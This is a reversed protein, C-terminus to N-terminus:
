NVTKDKEGNKGKEEESQKYQVELYAWIKMITEIGNYGADQYYLDLLRFLAMATLNEDKLNDLDLVEDIANIIENKWKAMKRKDSM